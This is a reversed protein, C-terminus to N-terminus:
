LMQSSMVHSSFAPHFLGTIGMAAQLCYSSSVALVTLDGAEAYSAFQGPWQIAADIRGALFEIPTKGGGYAIYTIKDSIGM